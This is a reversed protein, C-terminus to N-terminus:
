KDKYQKAAINAVLRAARSRRSNAMIDALGRRWKRGQEYADVMRQYVETNIFMRTPVSKVHMGFQDLLAQIQDADSRM